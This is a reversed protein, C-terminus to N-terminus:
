NTLHKKFYLFDTKEILLKLESKINIAKTSLSNKCLKLEIIKRFILYYNQAIFIIKHNEVKNLIRKAINKNGALMYTYAKLIDFCEYYGDEINGDNYKKYDIDAIEMMKFASEFDEILIFCESMIFQFYPFHVGKDNGRPLTKETEFAILKWKELKINDNKYNSFLINSMIKRALPFPHIEKESVKNITNLATIMNKEDNGLFAALFIISHSFIISENTKKQQSYMKFSNLYAKRIGDIFPYREYFYIQSTTNKSLYVSLNKLLKEDNTLKKAINGCAKQYNIDNLESPKINYFEKIFSITENNYQQHKKQIVNENLESFNNYGCYNSILDLTRRSPNTESKIFGLIRRLTQPSIYEKTCEQIHQSVLECEYYYKISKGYRLFIHSKLNEYDVEM